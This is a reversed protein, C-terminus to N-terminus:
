HNLKTPSANKYITICHSVFVQMTATIYLINKLKTMLVMAMTMKWFFNVGRVHPTSGM